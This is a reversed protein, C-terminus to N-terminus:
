ILQRRGTVRLNKQEAANIVSILKYGEVEWRGVININVPQINSSIGNSTPTPVSPVNPVSPSVFGTAASTANTSSRAVGATAASLAIGAGILISGTAIKGAGLTEALKEVLGLAIQATGLKILSLGFQHLAVGLRNDGQIISDALGNLVASIGSGTINQWLAIEEQLGTRM